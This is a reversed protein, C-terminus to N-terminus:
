DTLASLSCVGGQHHHPPANLATLLSNSPHHCTFLNAGVTHSSTLVPTITSTLLCASSSFTAISVLDVHSHSSSSDAAFSWLPWHQISRSGCLTYCKLFTLVSRMHSAVTLAQMGHSWTRSWRRSGVVSRLVCTRQLYVWMGTQVPGWCPWSPCSTVPGTWLSNLQPPLGDPFLSLPNSTHDREQVGSLYLEYLKPSLIIKIKFWLVNRCYSCRIHVHCM